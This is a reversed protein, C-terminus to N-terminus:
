TSLRRALGDTRMEYECTTVAHSRQLGQRLLRNVAEELREGKLQAYARSVESQVQARLDVMDERTLREPFKRRQLYQHVASYVSSECQQILRQEAHYSPDHMREIHEPPFM